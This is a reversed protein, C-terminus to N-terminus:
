GIALRIAVAVLLVCFAYTLATTSVRGKIAIGITVGAMAPLGILLAKEWDVNGLLGHTATGVAATITIAALSTATALKADYALLGILLPVVVVGGGVGFLASFLGAVLGIACLRVIRDRGTLAGTSADGM